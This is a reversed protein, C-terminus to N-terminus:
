RAPAAAQATGAMRGVPQARSSIGMKSYINGLHYEITKVSLSRGQRGAEPVGYKSRSVPEDRPSVRGGRLRNGALFGKSLFRPSRLM